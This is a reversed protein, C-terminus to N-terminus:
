SIPPPPDPGMGQQLSSASCNRSSSRPGFGFPLPLHALHDELLSRLSELVHEVDLAARFDDLTPERGALRTRLLPLAFTLAATVWRRRRRLWKLTGAVHDSDPDAESSPRLNAALEELSGDRREAKDVAAEIDRLSGKVGSALCDPLLSFTVRHRPCRWRAIRTGPPEVREYPTHRCFGCGGDPHLPCSQLSAQEWFRQSTYEDATLQCPLRFQM